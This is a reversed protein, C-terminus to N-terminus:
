YMNKLAQHAKDRRPLVFLEKFILFNTLNKKDSVTPTYSKINNAIRLRLTDTIIIEKLIVNDQMVRLLMGGSYQTAEHKRGKRRM